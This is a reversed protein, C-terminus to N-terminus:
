RVRRLIGTRVENRHNPPELGRRDFIAHLYCLRSICWGEFYSQTFKSYFPLEPTSPPQTARWWEEIVRKHDDSLTSDATKLAHQVARLSALIGILYFVFATGELRKALLEDFAWQAARLYMRAQPLKPVEHPTMHESLGAAIQQRSGKTGCGHDAGARGRHDQQRRARARGAGDGARH